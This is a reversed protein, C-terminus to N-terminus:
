YGKYNAIPRSLGHRIFLVPRKNDDIGSEIYPEFLGTSYTNWGLSEAVPSPHIVSKSHDELCDFWEELSVYGENVMKNNLENRASEIANYNSVIPKDEGLMEDIVICDSYPDTIVINSFDNNEISDKTLEERIKQEKKEGIIEKTKNQYDILAKTSASYAATLAANRKLNICTGFIIMGGSLIIVLGSPLYVKWCDKVIDTKTYEKKHKKANSKGKEIIKVAKPTARIALITGTIMGGIGIGVLIEPSHKSISNGIDKFAKSFDM